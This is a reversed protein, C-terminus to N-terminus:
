LKCAGIRSIGIVLGVTGDAIPSEPHDPRDRIGSVVFTDGELFEWINELAQDAGLSDESLEFHHLEKLVVVDERTEVNQLRWVNVKELLNVQDCFEHL